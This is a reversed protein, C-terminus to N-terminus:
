RHFRNIANTVDARTAVVPKVELGTISRIDDLAFVNAPDAMAVVLKGDEYSIPMASYRRCVADPVSGVAAGDVAYDSLDVFTLGVPSGDRFVLEVAEARAQPLTPPYVPPPVVPTHRAHRAQRPRRGLLRTLWRM